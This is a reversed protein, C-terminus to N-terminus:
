DRGVEDEAPEVSGVEHQALHFLGYGPLVVQPYAIGILSGAFPAIAEVRGNTHPDPARAAENDLDVRIQPVNTREDSGTDFDILFDCRRILREFLGYALRSATSGTPNGPSARNPDRRDPLHRSGARFGWVNVIPIAILTGSLKATDTGAFINRASEVGNLEDGHVAGTLCLTPGPRTGRAIQVDVDVIGKTFSDRHVISIQAKTGPAISAELITLPGWAAAWGTCSSALVLSFLAVASPISLNM